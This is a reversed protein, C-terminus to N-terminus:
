SGPQDARAAAAAKAKRRLAARKRREYTSSFKRAIDPHDRFVRRAAARIARVRRVLLVLLRNRLKQAEEHDVDPTPAPGASLADALMVAEDILSPEFTTDEKILRDKLEAALGSYDRLAQSLASSREGDQSHFDKIQELQEDAPEEVGDDLFFEIASELEDVVKRARDGGDVMVPDVNLLLATQARQVAAVLGPMEEGFSHPCRNPVASLGPRDDAPDWYRLVLRGALGAERWAVDYPKHFPNKTQEVSVAAAKWEEHTTPM